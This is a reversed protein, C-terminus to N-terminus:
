VDRRKQGHMKWIERKEHRLLEIEEWERRKKMKDSDKETGRKKIQSTKETM